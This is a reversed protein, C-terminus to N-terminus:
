TQTLFKPPFVCGRGHAKGEEAPPTSRPWAWGRGREDLVAWAGGQGETGSDRASQPSRTQAWTGQRAGTSGTRHGCEQLGTVVVPAMVCEQGPLWHHLFSCFTGLGRGTGQKGPGRGARPLTLPPPSSDPSFLVSQSPLCLSAECEPGLALPALLHEWKPSCSPLKCIGRRRGRWSRPTLSVWPHGQLSEGPLPGLERFGM